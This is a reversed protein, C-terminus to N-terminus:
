EGGGPPVHRPHGHEDTRVRGSRLDAISVPEVRYPTGHKEIHDTYASAVGPFGVLKWGVKGRNGGYIPDAFFGERTNQWLLRFFLPAPASELALTGEELERLVGEQQPPELECFRKGHRSACRRDTEAIAARYIERPTLRGQDGQQPTGEPWPGQRYERAMTGFDGDLQRDIFVVVGAEKAGPGLEDAPILRALAAELFDVETPSLYTYTDAPTAPTPAEPLNPPAPSEARAGPLHSLASLAGLTKLIRRRGQTM